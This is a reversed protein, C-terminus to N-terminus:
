AVIEFVDEVVGNRVGFMKRHLSITADLYQVSIEIKQGLQPSKIQPSELVDKEIITHEAHLAKVHLETMGKVRPLGRQASIAKAGANLVIRSDCRSIVTALVSLCTEFDPAYPLYWSDMLLYSGAQIETVGPFASVIACDSTGGSSVIEVSIGHSEILNKSDIMKQMAAHVLEQKEPGNELRLNGRHATLGRFKMGNEIIKKALALAPYGPLVGCRHLGLDLEVVVNLTGRRGGALRSMESVGSADDVAVIANAFSSLEVFRQISREGAIENAILISKIGHHALAEAHELRACTIGIAGTQVQKSALSLVQHAKFHPRLRASGTRLLASMRRMNKEMKDLDLLLSPTELDKVETPGL